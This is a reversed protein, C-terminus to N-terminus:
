HRRRIPWQTGVAELLEQSIDKERGDAKAWELIAKMKPRMTMACSLSFKTSSRSRPLCRRSTM